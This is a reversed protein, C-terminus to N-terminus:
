LRGRRALCPGCFRREGSVARGCEHCVGDVPLLRGDGDDCPRSTPTVKAPAPATSPPPMPVPKALVDAVADWDIPASKRGRKAPTKAAERMVKGAGWDVPIGRRPKTRM